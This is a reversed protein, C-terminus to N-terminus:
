EILEDASVLLTQPVTLHLTKATKLNIILELKTAQIIPLDSAKDGNLIRATYLGVQRHADALSGGYSMLAGETVADRWPFISAIAHREALDILQKRRSYFFGDNGIVLAGARQQMLTTFATEFERESSARLVQLQLGLNRAVDLLEMSQTEAVPSTPNVLLVISTIGPALEHMLELRKPGVEVGLSTVGTVNGGPRNLSTVLGVKIPDFASYFVIPITTTAAKAALTAPTGGITAIVTVQRRVLDAALGPLRHNQHEAWRYEIAVNRAEVYGSESLGQRFAAAIPAYGIPDGISLLGVVPLAPQQARVAVPWTAAAGSLLTIFERRRM